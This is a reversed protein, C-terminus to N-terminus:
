EDDLEDEPNPSRPPPGTVDSIWSSYPMIEDMIGAPVAYESSKLVVSYV